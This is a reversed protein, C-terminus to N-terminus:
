LRRQGIFILASFVELVRHFRPDSALACRGEAAPLEGSADAGPRVALFRFRRRNMQQFQQLRSKRIGRKQFHVARWFRSM